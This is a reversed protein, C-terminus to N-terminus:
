IITAGIIGAKNGLKAVRIKPLIAKNLIENRNKLEDRLRACLIDEYHAFSGGISIVEPEFINILNELGICMYKVYEDVIDKVKEFTAKDRLMEEIQKGRVEKGLNLRERIKNKFRRMSGFTEFCGTRGCTCKTGNVDIVMHGLEFADTNAPKLLKGSLFVAGGIGTGLTLFVADNINKLSGIEKEALAACKADNRLLIDVNFKDKLTSVVDTNYVKLNEARIIKGDSAIGPCAIGILDIKKINEQKILEDILISLNDLLTKAPNDSEAIKIDRAIESLLINNDNVAGVAIHSGGVDIGIKM